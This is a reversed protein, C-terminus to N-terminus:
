HVENHIIVRNGNEFVEVIPECWCTDGHECHSPYCDCIVLRDVQINEENAASEESVGTVEITLEATRASNVPASMAKLQLM